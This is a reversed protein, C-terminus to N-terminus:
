KAEVSMAIENDLIQNIRMLCDDLAAHLKQLDQKLLNKTNPDQFDDLVNEIHRMGFMILERELQDTPLVTQINRSYRRLWQKFSRLDKKDVGFVIIDELNDPIINNNYFWTRINDEHGFLAFPNREHSKIHNQCHIIDNFPRLFTLADATPLRIITGSEDLQHLIIIWPQCDLYPVESFKIHHIHKAM